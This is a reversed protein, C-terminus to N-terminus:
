KSRGKFIREWKDLYMTAYEIATDIKGTTNGALEITGGSPHDSERTVQWRYVGEVVGHGAYWHDKVTAYIDGRQLTWYTTVGHEDTAMKIVM